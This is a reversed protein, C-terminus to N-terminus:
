PTPGGLYKLPAPVLTVAVSPVNTDGQTEGDQLIQKDSNAFVHCHEGYSALKADKGLLVFCDDGVSIRSGEGAIVLLHDEGTFHDGPLVRVAMKRVPTGAPLPATPTHQDLLLSVGNDDFVGVAFDTSATGDMEPMSFTVEDDAHEITAAEWFTASDMPILVVEDAKRLGSGTLTVRDGTAASAPSFGTLHALVVPPAVPTAPGAPAPTPSAAQGASEPVSPVADGHLDPPTSAPSPADSKQDSFQHVLRDISAHQTRYLRWGVFGIAALILILAALAVLLLSLAGM